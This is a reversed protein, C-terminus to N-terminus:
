LRTQPNKRGHAPLNEYLQPDDELWVRYQGLHPTRPREGLRLGECKPRILGVTHSLNETADKVLVEPILGCIMEPGSLADISFLSGNNTEGRRM